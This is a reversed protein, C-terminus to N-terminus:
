RQRQQRRRRLWGWERWEVTARNSARCRRPRCRRTRGGARRWDSGDARPSAAAPTPLPPRPPPRHGRPCRRPRHRPAQVLSAAPVLGVAVGRRPHEGIGPLALTRSDGTIARANAARHHGVGRLADSPTHFPHHSLRRWPSEWTSHPAWTTVLARRCRACPVSGAFLRPMGPPVMPAHTAREPGGACHPQSRTQQM